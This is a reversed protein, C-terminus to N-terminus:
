RRHRKNKSLLLLIDCSTTQIIQRVLNNHSSAQLSFLLPATSLMGLCAPEGIELLFLAWWLTRHAQLCSRALVRKSRFAAKFSDAKLCPKWKYFQNEQQDQRAWPWSVSHAQLYAENFPIGAKCWQTHKVWLSSLCTFCSKCRSQKTINVILEKKKKKSFKM